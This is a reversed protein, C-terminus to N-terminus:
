PAIPSFCLSHAMRHMFFPMGIMSIVASPFATSRVGFWSLASGYSFSRPQAPSITSTLPVSLVRPPALPISTDSAFSTAAL